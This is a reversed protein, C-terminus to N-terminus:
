VRFRLLDNGACQMFILVSGVFPFTIDPSFYILILLGPHPSLCVYLLLKLSSRIRRALTTWSTKYQTYSQRLAFLAFSLCTLTDSTRCAMFMLCGKARFGLVLVPALNRACLVVRSVGVQQFPSVRSGSYYAYPHTDSYLWLPPLYISITLHCSPVHGGCSPSSLRSVSVRCVQDRLIPVCIHGEEDFGPHYIKTM